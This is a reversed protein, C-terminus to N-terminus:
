GPGPSEAKRRESEARRDHAGKAVGKERGDTELVVIGAILHAGGGVVATVNTVGALEDGADGVSKDLISSPGGIPWKLLVMPCATRESYRLHSVEGTSM